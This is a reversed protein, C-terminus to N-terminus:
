PQLYESKLGHTSYKTTLEIPTQYDKQAVRYVITSRRHKLRIFVLEHACIIDYM